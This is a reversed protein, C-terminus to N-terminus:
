CDEQKVLTSKMLIIVHFKMLEMISTSIMSPYNFVIPVETKRLDKKIYDLNKNYPLSIVNLSDQNFKVKNRNEHFKSKAISHCNHMFINQYGLNLFM